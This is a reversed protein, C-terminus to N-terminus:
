TKKLIIKKVKAVDKTFSVMEIFSSSSYRIFLFLEM